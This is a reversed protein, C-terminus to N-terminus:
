KLKQLKIKKRRKQAYLMFAGFGTIVVGIVTLSLNSLNSNPLSEPGTGAGLVEGNSDSTPTASTSPQIGTSTPEISPSGTSTPSVTVTTIPSVSVTVSPSPSVTQTPLPTSTSTPTTTITSIPSVTVSPAITGTPSPTQTASPTSTPSVTPKPKKGPKVCATIKYDVSQISNDGTLPHFIKLTNNGAPVNDVEITGIDFWENKEPGRDRYEYIRSENLDINLDEFKQNQLCKSPPNAVYCGEEPHGEKIFGSLYVTSDEALVFPYTQSKPDKLNYLTGSYTSIQTGSDKCVPFNPEKYEGETAPTRYQILGIDFDLADGYCILKKFDVLMDVEELGEKAQSSINRAGTNQITTKHGDLPKGSAFETKDIVVRYKTNVNINRFIYIGMEDTTTRAIENKNNANLLRINVGGIGPEGPDQIGNGNTDRWVRNGIQTSTSTENEYVVGLNIDKGTSTNFFVVSSNSDKGIPGAYQTEPIDIFELRANQNKDVCIEYKGSNNTTAGTYRKGNQLLINVKIKSLGPENSDYNGNLNLDRFVTGKVLSGAGCSTTGLVSQDSEVGARNQLVLAYFLILGIIVFLNLSILLLTEKGKIEVLSSFHNKQTM